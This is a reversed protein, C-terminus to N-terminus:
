HKFKYFLEYWFPKPDKKDYDMFRNTRRMDNIYNWLSIQRTLMLKTESFEPTVYVSKVERELEKNYDQGICDLYWIYPLNIGAELVCIANGDNRFNIEMFYDKGDKGRLFEVSFLGHYGTKQIFRNVSTIDCNLGKLTSYKLHSTNSGKCPRIINTYGPIIIEKSTACGILQFEIEKDIFTQVQVSADGINRLYHLLEEKSKCICIDAKFGDKSAIPKTICPYTIGDTSSKVSLVKSKPINLGFEVALDSMVQKNMLYSIRGQESSGPLLYRDKLINVNKDIASSVKDFCAIVVPKRGYTPLKLLVDVIDEEKEVFITRAIYKSKSVFSLRPNSVLIVIPKLGREGLARIVSLGNHHESAIVIVKNDM